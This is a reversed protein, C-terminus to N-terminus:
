WYGRYFVLLVAKPAAGSGASGHQLLQTLSVNTGQTDPLTFDPAKQGVQPAASTSPLSRAEFWGLALLACVAISLVAIISSSIKGRYLHSQGFARRAGIASLFLAALGCFLSLWPLARQAPFAIFFGINLGVALLALLLALWPMRNPLRDVFEPM